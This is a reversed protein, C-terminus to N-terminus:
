QKLTAVPRRTTPGAKTDDEWTAAAECVLADILLGENWPHEDDRAVRALTKAYAVLAPMRAGHPLAEANFYSPRGGVAMAMADHCLKQLADIARPVPWGNFVTSQGQAVARPVALWTASDIGAASLALAQLPAGAAAALLVDAHAVGQGALWDLSQQPDPLHLMLRQCRSRVTPLLHEVDSCGLLLRAAGPPEELTKLLASAAQLNMAEAPFVLLVKARGRSTTQGIWDIATRVEDIRIQKSPKKRAKGSDDAEGEGTQGWGFEVRRAEPLLVLLDPHAHALVLRCSGCHGCPRPTDDAECLWAQSMALMFEFAGTGEAAQVLLAHSRQQSLAQRLPAQLWPLPEDPRGVAPTLAM